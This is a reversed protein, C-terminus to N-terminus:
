RLGVLIAAASKCCVTADLSALATIFSLGSTTSGAFYWRNALTNLSFADSHKGGDRGYSWAMSRFGSAGETSGALAMRNGTSSSAAALSNMLSFLHSLHM